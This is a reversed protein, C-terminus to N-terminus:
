YEFLWDQAIYFLDEITILNDNNFDYKEDYLATGSSSLYCEAFEAFDYLNVINDCNLDTKYRTPMPERLPLWNIYEEINTYGDGDRDAGADSSNYPNLCCALEWENPMGDGDSDFAPTTSNLIPLWCYDNDGDSCEPCGEILGGNPCLDYQSDIIGNGGGEYTSGYSGGRNKVENVIRSDISDRIPYSAGADALVDIYAKEASTTNVEAVSFPTYVRVIEESSSGTYQIGGAWNDATINPYSDVYNGAVYIRTDTDQSQYIRYKKVGGSGSSTAPGYKYYNNIINIHCREGGYASNFGWNYIVNNRHDIYGDRDFRPTRSTHHAFLNHHFSANIGGWIGGYGHEGKSHCSDYLSETIMCWQITFDHGKYFTLAEDVSWSVTCHDIIVNYQNDDDNLCDVDKGSLDTARFRLYRIIVDHTNVTVQDGVIAIGDGPATQGAITIYPIRITLRSRLMINGSAEFIVIRPRSTEIAERLSGPGSDNLNTVKIVQGGRGGVSVAGYGEAGPFAPLACANHSGLFVVLLIICSFIYKKMLSFLTIYTPIRVAPM